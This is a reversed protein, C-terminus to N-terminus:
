YGHPGAGEISSTTTADSGGDWTVHCDTCVFIPDTFGRYERGDTHHTDYGFAAVPLSLAIALASLVLAHRFLRGLGRNEVRTTLM